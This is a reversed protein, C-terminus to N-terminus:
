SSAASDSQLLERFPPVKPVFSEFGPKPRTARLAALMAQLGEVEETVAAAAFRSPTERTMGDSNSFPWLPTVASIAIPSSFAARPRPNETASTM